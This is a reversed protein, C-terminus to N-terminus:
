FYRGLRTDIDSDDKPRKPIFTRSVHKYGGSRFCKGERLYQSMMEQSLKHKGKYRAGKASKPKDSQTKPHTLAIAEGGKSEVMKARTPTLPTKTQHLHKKTAKGQKSSSPEEEKHLFPIPDPPILMLPSAPSILSQRRKQM